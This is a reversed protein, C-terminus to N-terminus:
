TPENHVPSLALDGAPHDRASLPLRSLRIKKMGKAPLVALPDAPLPTVIGDYRTAIPRWDKLLRRRSKFCDCLVRVFRFAIAIM